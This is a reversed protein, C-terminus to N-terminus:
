SRSTPRPGVLAIAGLLLLLLSTPEPVAHARSAPGQEYAGDTLAAVMDGTGFAHSGDWDGESWGAESGTEYKGISLVRVLDATDFEGDLDADGYFTNKLVHVWVDRDAQNVREDGNLDYEADNSGDRVVASLLDIDIATLLGDNDFDGPIGSIGFFKDDLYAEVAVRDEDGLAESYLLVEAFDVTAKQFLGFRGGLVFGELSPYGVQGEGVLLGNLHHQAMGDALFTFAHYQLEDLVLPATELTGDSSKIQWLGPTGGDYNANVETGADQFAGDFFFAAEEDRVTAAVFVTFQEELVGWGDYEGSEIDLMGRDRSTAVNEYRLALHGNETAVPELVSPFIPDAFATDIDRNADGQRNPWYPTSLDPDNGIAQNGDYWAHLRPDEINPEGDVLIQAHGSAHLLSLCVFLPASLQITCRIMNNEWPFYRRAGEFRVTPM